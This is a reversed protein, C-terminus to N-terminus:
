WKSNGNEDTGNYSLGITACAAEGIYFAFYYRTLVLEGAAFVFLCRFSFLINSYKSSHKELFYRFLLSKAAFDETLMYDGTIDFTRQIQM